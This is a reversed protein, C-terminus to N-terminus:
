WWRIQSKSATRSPPCRRRITTAFVCKSNGEVRCYQTQKVSAISPGQAIFSSREFKFSLERKRSYHEKDWEGVFEQGEEAITWDGVQVDTKGSRTLWPEYFRENDKGQGESLCVNFFDKVSTDDLVKTIIVNM